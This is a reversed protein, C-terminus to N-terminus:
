IKLQYNVFLCNNSESSRMNKTNKNGEEMQTKTKNYHKTKTGKTIIINYGELFAKEFCDKSATADCSIM